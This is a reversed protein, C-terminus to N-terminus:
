SARQSLEIRKMNLRSRILKYLHVSPHLFQITPAHNTSSSGAGDPAFRISRKRTLVTAEAQARCGAACEPERQWAAKACVARTGDSATFLPPFAPAALASPPADDAAPHFLAGGGAREDSPTSAGQRAAFWALFLFTCSLSIRAARECGDRLLPSAAAAAARSGKDAAM